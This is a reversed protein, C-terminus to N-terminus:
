KVHKKSKKMPGASEEEHFYLNTLGSMVPVLKVKDAVMIVPENVGKSKERIGTTVAIQNKSPSIRGDDERKAAFARVVQFDSWRAGGSTIWFSVGEFLIYTEAGIDRDTYKGWTSMNVWGSKANDGVVGKEGIMVPGVTSLPSGTKANRDYDPAAAAIVAGGKPDVAMVFTKMDGQFVHQAEAVSCPGQFCVSATLLGFFAGYRVIAKSKFFQLMMSIVERCGDEHM